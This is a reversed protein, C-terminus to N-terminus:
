WSIENSSNDFDVVEEIITLFNLANRTLNYWPVM